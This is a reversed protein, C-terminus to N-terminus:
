QSVLSAVLMEGPQLKTFVAVFLESGQTHSGMRGDGKRGLRM